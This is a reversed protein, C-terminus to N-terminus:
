YTALAHNFTTPLMSEDITWIWLQSVRLLPWFREKGMDAGRRLYKTVVQDKNRSNRDRVSDEDSAFQYYFEDLTTPQHIVWNRYVKFLEQRMRIEDQIKKEDTSPSSAGATQDGEKQQGSESQHYKSFYLYPMKVPTLIHFHTFAQATFVSM